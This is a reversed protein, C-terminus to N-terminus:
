IHILSLIQTVLPCNREDSSVIIETGDNCDDLRDCRSTLLICKKKTGDRCPWRYPDETTPFLTYCKGQCLTDAMDSGDKCLPEKQASCAMDLFICSGNDCRHLSWGDSALSQCYRNCSESNEDSGSACLKHANCKQWSGLCMSGDDCPSLSAEESSCSDRICMESGM